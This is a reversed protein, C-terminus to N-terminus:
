VSTSHLFRLSLTHDDEEDEAAAVVAEERGRGGRMTWKMRKWGDRWKPGRVAIEGDDVRQRTREEHQCLQSRRKEQTRGCTAILVLKMRSVVTTEM